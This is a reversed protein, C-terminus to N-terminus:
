TCDVTCVYTRVSYMSCLNPVQMALRLGNFTYDYRYTKSGNTKNKEEAKIQQARSDQQEGLLRYYGAVRPPIGGRLDDQIKRKM